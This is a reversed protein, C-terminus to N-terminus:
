TQQEQQTLLADIEKTMNNFLQIIGKPEPVDESLKEYKLTWHVLSGEDKPTAQVIAHVSKYKELLHGEIVKFTSNKEDNIEEIIDKAVEPVGDHTYNWYVVCGKQGWDGEHLDASQIHGPAMNSVHHPRRSFVDHFAHAEAKIEIETELQGALAM